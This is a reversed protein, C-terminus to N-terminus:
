GELPEVFVDVTGNCGLGLGWVLDDDATMDYRLLRPRGERLVERAHEAVDGELCGGSITGFTEGGETVVMKAGERRYASGTVHVVTAVAARVRQARLREIVEAVDHM